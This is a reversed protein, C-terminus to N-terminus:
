KEGGMKIIRKVVENVITDMTENEFNYLSSWVIRSYDYKYRDNFKREYIEVIFQGGDCDYDIEHKAYYKTIDRLELESTIKFIIESKIVFNMVSMVIESNDHWAYNHFQEILFLEGKFIKIYIYMDDHDDTDNYRVNYEILEMSSLESSIESIIKDRRDIM